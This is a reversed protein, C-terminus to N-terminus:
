AIARWPRSPCTSARPRFGCPATPRRSSSGATRPKRWRPSNSRSATLSRPAARQPERPAADCSATAAAAARPQRAAPPMAPATAGNLADGRAGRRDLRKQQPLPALRPAATPAAGAQRRARVRTAAAPRADREHAPGAERLVRDLCTHRARETDEQACRAISSWGQEASM